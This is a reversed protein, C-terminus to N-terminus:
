AFSTTTSSTLPPSPSANLLSSVIIFILLGDIGYKIYRMLILVYLVVENNYLTKNALRAVQALGLIKEVFKEIPEGSSMQKISDEDLMKKRARAESVYSRFLYLSAEATKLVGGSVGRLNQFTDTASRLHSRGPAAVHLWHEPDQEALLTMLKGAECRLTSITYLDGSHTCRLGEWYSRIALERNGVYAAVAVLALSLKPVIASVVYKPMAEYLDFALTLNQILADELEADHDLEECNAERGLRGSLRPLFCSADIFRGIEDCRPGGAAWRQMTGDDLWGNWVRAMQPLKEQLRSPDAAVAAAFVDLVVLIARQHAEADTQQAQTLSLHLM